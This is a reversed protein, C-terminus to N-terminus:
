AFPDGDDGPAAPTDDDDDHSVAPKSEAVAVVIKKWARVRNVQVPVAKGDKEYVEVEPTGEVSIFDGKILKAMAEATQDFSVCKTYITNYKPTKDPNLGAYESNSITVSTFKKKGEVPDNTFPDKVVRGVSILVNM